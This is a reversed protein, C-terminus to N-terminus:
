LFVPCARTKSYNIYKEIAPQSFILLCDAPQSNKKGDQQSHPVSIKKGLLLFFISFLGQFRKNIM